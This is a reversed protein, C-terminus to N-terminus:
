ATRRMPTGAPVRVGTGGYSLGDLEGREVQQWLEPSLVHWCQVWTGAPLQQDGLKTAAPLVYHEALVAERDDLYRAHGLNLHANGERYKALWGHAAKEITSRREFDDQTDVADPELVVCWFKQQPADLKLLRVQGPAPEGGAAEAEEGDEDEGPADLDDDEDEADDAELDDPLRRKLVLDYLPVPEAARKALRVAGFAEELALFVEAKRLAVAHESLAARLAVALPAEPAATAGEAYLFDAALTIEPPFNEAAKRLGRRHEANYILGQLTKGPAAAPPLAGMGRDYGRHVREFRRRYQRASTGMATPVHVDSMGPSGKRQPEGLLRQLKAKIRAKDAAPIGGTLPLRALANRVGDLNVAGDPDRYPLKLDAFTAAGAPAWAFHRGVHHREAATLESWDKDTFDGLSPRSWAKEVSSEGLLRQLKARIRERAAAPIGHTQPLRSLANRVGDLNVKGSPEKYPLKLDGFTRLGPAAYAFHGAIRRREEPSLAEWSQDTFDELSPRSWAKGVPHPGTAAYGQLFALQKARRRGHEDGPQYTYVHGSGGWQYGPKGDQQAEHVPM